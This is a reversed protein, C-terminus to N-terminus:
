KSHFHVCLFFINLYFNRFISHQILNLCWCSITSTYLLLVSKVVNSEGHMTISNNVLFHSYYRTFSIKLTYVAGFIIRTFLDLLFLHALCTAHIPSFFPAYLIKTPVGSPLRGSPHGLRLHSSLILISRWSTSILAHVTDLQSLIPVSPPSKHIRYHVEPNWLIRLIEQSASFSNAEWSHRQEM